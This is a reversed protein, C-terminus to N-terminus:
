METWRTMLLVSSKALAEDYHFGSSGSMSASKVIAAGYADSSGSLTLDAQPANVSGILESSGSYSISTCTPLGVLSFNLASQTTNVVGGGSLSVSGGVIVTLKAGANILVYSSGSLSFNGTIYLTANGNVIIAASSGSGSVSAIQNTGNGLTIVGGVVPPAAFPGGSPPANTPFAVNMTNDSWGPEIGNNGAIWVSDGVSGGGGLSITGGPGTSVKGYIDSNGISIAGAAMSTTALGGNANRNTAVNYGGVRSDFSDVFTSGSLSIQGSAAIAKTFVTPPNSIGVRIMRSIYTNTALPSPVFGSSYVTPNNSTANYIAVYYSSSDPFTRRKTYVTQGSINTAVWNNSSPNNLSTNLKTMAEEVGAEAVPMANNWGMSRTTMQYRNGILLLYSSLVTGIAAGTFLCILLVSGAPRNTSLPLKM